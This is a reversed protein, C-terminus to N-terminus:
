HSTSLSRTIWQAAMALSGGEVGDTGLWPINQRRTSGRIGQFRQAGSGSVNNLAEDPRLGNLDNSPEFACLEGEINAEADKGWPAESAQKKM